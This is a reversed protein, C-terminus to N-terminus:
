NNTVWVSCMVIVQATDRSRQMPIGSVVRLLKKVEVSRNV